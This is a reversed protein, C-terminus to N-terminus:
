VGRMPAHDPIWNGHFGYPVRVPLHVSAVMDLTGADLLVLDSAGRGGDYVYGMLVGDDEPADAGAPAFVFESLGTGPGFSRAAQRRSHFDYKYLM